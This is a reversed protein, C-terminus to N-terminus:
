HRVGGQRTSDATRWRVHDCSSAIIAPKADVADMKFCGAYPPILISPNFRRM